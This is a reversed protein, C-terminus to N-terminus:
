RGLPLPLEEAVRDAEFSSRVLPGAEVHGLGVARGLEALAPYEAPAYYREVPLHEASPRLYQGVTVLECGVSALDTFVQTVEPLREGLGVMIGSKARLGAASTRELLELTREYRAGPRVRKYLRPVTETNHNLVDPAAEIIADLADWFPVAEFHTWNAAYVLLGIVVAEIMHAPKSFIGDKLEEYRSRCWLLLSVVVVTKFPYLWLELPTQWGAPIISQRALWPVAGAIAICAMYAAFPLIRPDLLSLGSSLGPVEARRDPSTVAATGVKAM